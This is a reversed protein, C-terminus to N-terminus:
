LGEDYIRRLGLKGKELHVYMGNLIENRFNHQYDFAISLAKNSNHKRLVQKAEDDEGTLVDVEKASMLPAHPTLLKPDIRQAVNAFADPSAPGVGHECFELAENLEDETLHPDAEAGGQIVPRLFDFARDFNDEDVEALIPATQSKMQKYVAWVVVLFRTYATGIKANHFAIAEAESCDGRISSTITAAAALGGTFALHIGSSFLPDIFAGADGAIRYHNGAYHNSTSSYSYDGASRILGNFTANGLLRQVGPALKLQEFYHAINTDKESSVDVQSKKIRNSKESVVVGVSVTGDHLPIFWAWGTEDTLAEFWPANERDTGPSYVGAGKWYGWTAINRLSENFKRTKLYKTSMIGNRGSADVLWDFSIVGNQNGYKSSWSASIPRTEDTKSFQIDNVTIGSHVRAGCEAAHKLLLDDFEARLLNWASNELNFQIFNTYGERKYQNLKIAAGPKKVFGCQKVKEKAGVFDLFANFSPLMSEGVHYRPFHDKELVTVQFGERALVSATYAGAPGGGIVLIKTSDPVVPIGM